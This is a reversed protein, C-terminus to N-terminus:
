VFSAMDIPFLNIALTLFRTFKGSNSLGHKSENAGISDPCMDHQKCCSDTLFFYGVHNGDPSINGDGCWQTGLYIARIQAKTMKPSYKEILLDLGSATEPSQNLIYPGAVPLIANKM